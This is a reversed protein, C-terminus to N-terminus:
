GRQNGEHNGSVREAAGREAGQQAGRGWAAKEKSSLQEWSPDDKDRSKEYTKKASQGGHTNRPSSSRAM